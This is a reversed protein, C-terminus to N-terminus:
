AREGRRVARSMQLARAPESRWREPSLPRKTAARAQWAIPKSSDAACQSMRVVSLINSLRTAIQRRHRFFALRNVRTAPLSQAGEASKGLRVQCTM